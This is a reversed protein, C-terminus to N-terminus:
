KGQRVRMAEARYAALIAAGNPIKKVWAEVEAQVVDKDYREKDGAVLPAITHGPIARVQAESTACIKDLDAGLQQSAVYGSNKDIAAKAQPPLKAYADKNMMLLGGGSGLGAVLHYSTAEALKYEHLGLWGIIIGDATHRQLM